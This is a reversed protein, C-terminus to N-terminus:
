AVYFTRPAAAGPAKTTERASWVFMGDAMASILDLVRQHEEGRLLDVPRRNGLLRNPASLWATAQERPLVKALADAVGAPLQQTEDM